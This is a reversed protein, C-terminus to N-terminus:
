EQFWTRMVRVFANNVNGRPNMSRLIDFRFELSYPDDSPQLNTKLTISDRSTEADQGLPTCELMVVLEAYTFGRDEASLPRKNSYCLGFVTESGFEGDDNPFNALSEPKNSSIITVIKGTSRRRLSVRVHIPPMTESFHSPNHAGFIAKFLAKRELSSNEVPESFRDNETPLPVTLSWQPLSFTAGLGDLWLPAIDHWILEDGKRMEFLVDIDSVADRLLLPWPHKRKIIRSTEDLEFQRWQNLAM